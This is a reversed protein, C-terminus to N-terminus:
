ITLLWTGMKCAPLGLNQSGMGGAGAPYLSLPSSLIYLASLPLLTGHTSVGPPQVKWCVQTGSLSALVLLHEAGPPTSYRPGTGHLWSASGKLRSQVLSKAIGMNILVQPTVGAWFRMWDAGMHYRVAWSM